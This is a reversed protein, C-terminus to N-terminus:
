VVKEAWFFTCGSDGVVASHTVTGPILLRDGPNCAYQKKAVKVSMSGKLFALVKTEAHSHSPYVFGPANTIKLPDFGEERISREIAEEPKGTYFSKQYM